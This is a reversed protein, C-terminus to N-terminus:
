HFKKRVVFDVYWKDVDEVITSGPLLCDQKLKSSVAIVFMEMTMLYGIVLTRFMAM